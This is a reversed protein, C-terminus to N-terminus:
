QEPGQPARKAIVEADPLDAPPIKAVDVGQDIDGLDTKYEDPGGSLVVGM